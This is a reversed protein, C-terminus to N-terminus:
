VNNSLTKSQINYIYIKKCIISKQLHFDKVYPFKYCILIPNKSHKTIITTKSKLIM